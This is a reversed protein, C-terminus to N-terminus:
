PVSIASSKCTRVAALPIRGLTDYSAVYLFGDEGVYVNATFRGQMSLFGLQKGNAADLLVVGGPGGGYIMGAEKDVKMGDNTEFNAGLMDKGAALKVPTGLSGDDKVEFSYWGVANAASEGVLLKTGDPSFAIGNPRYFGDYVLKVDKTGDQGTVLGKMSAAPVRYVGSINLERKPDQEKKELGYPPDTFYLDGNPAFALDNPSNLRKGGVKSALVVKTGNPYLRTIQREGQEAMVLLGSGPETSMGNAGVAVFKSKLAACYAKDSYCGAHELYTSVGKGQQWKLVLDRTVDTFLLYPSSGASDRRLLPSEFWTFGLSMNPNQFLVEFANSPATRVAPVTCELTGLPSVGGDALAGGLM